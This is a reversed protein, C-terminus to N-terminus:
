VQKRPRGPGRQIPEPETTLAVLDAHPKRSTLDILARAFSGVVWSGVYWVGVIALTVFILQGALIFFERYM